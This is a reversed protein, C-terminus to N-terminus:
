GGSAVVLTVYRQLNYVAATMYAQFQVRKMSFFRAHRMGIRVLHSILREVASRKPLLRRAEDSKNFEKLKQLQDEHANLAITRGRGKRTASSCLQVLPCSQCTQKDFKFQPVRTDSSGRDNVLTWRDTTSGGPCTVTMESLDIEFRQKPFSDKTSPAPMKGLLEVDRDECAKMNAGTTYAGDGLMTQPKVGDNDAQDLLDATPVADHVSADTMLIGTCFLTSITCMVHVKFGNILKSSSKRGHRAEPDTISIVRGAVTGQAIKYSGDDLQEVDQHAVTRLLAVAEIVDVSVGDGLREVASVVKDADRVQATLLENRASMDNWDIGAAGKPSRDLYREPLEWQELLEAPQCDLSQATRRVVQGIAVAILNYTDIIAGRCETNTSDIAQLAADDLIREDVALRVVRRHLVDDGLKQCLKSWFRGLSRVSPPNEDRTLGLAFKFGLDRKCREVVAEEGLRYHFRLMQMGVLVYPDCPTRGLQEHYMGAFDEDAFLRHVLVLLHREIAAPGLGIADANVDYFSFQQVNPRSM